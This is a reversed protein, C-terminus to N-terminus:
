PTFRDVERFPVTPRRKQAVIHDFLSRTGAPPLDTEPIVKDSLLSGRNTTQKALATIPSSSQTNSFMFAVYGATAIVIAAAALVVRNM